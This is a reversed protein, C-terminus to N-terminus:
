LFMFPVLTYVFVEAVLDTLTYCFLLIDTYGLCGAKQFRTGSKSNVQKIRYGM